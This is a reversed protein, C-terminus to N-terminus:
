SRPPTSPTISSTTSRPRSRTATVQTFPARGRGTALHHIIDHTIRDGEQECVKVDNAVTAHEPYDDLLDRLLLGCRQVNRGAEEVLGMLTADGNRRIFNM